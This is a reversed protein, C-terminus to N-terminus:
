LLAASFYDRTVGVEEVFVLNLMLRMEQKFFLNSSLLKDVTRVLLKIEFIHFFDQDRKSYDKNCCRGFGCFIQSPPDNRILTFDFKFNRM